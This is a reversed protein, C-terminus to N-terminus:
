DNKVEKWSFIKDPYKPRIALERNWIRSHHACLNRIYTLFHMWSAFVPAPLGYIRSVEKQDFYKLGHFLNSIAGFSM